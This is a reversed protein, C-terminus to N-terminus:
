SATEEAKAKSSKKSKTRGKRAAPPGSADAEAPAEAKAAPEDAEGATIEVAEQAPAAAEPTDEIEVAVEASAESEAESIPEAAEETEKEEFGGSAVLEKLKDGVLDGLTMGRDSRSSHYSEYDKREEDDHIQRVSLTLRREESRLDIIKAEIPTGVSVVDEPKKVRRHSLEANPIIGEIGSDLHVFAGFPVLRSVTGAVVQGVRYKQVVDSWPDPLIQRLGLSVRGADLNLKLIMVQLKQGVKVVESPHNVRTWSMESVHLLGDIGGLDVFAGYDAIRRIVGERIQGEVLSTITKERQKARDEEIALRHSLVVKRRERDVEIVKFPLSQGIYRDLNRVKGTGVHSGPVFGRIGLDVVLGGKVRDTVMATLKKGEQYAQQVREWANEFDARKKSLIPNGDKSEPQLVYVNIREGVAVVDEASQVPSPSLEDPHIIGESKTGVDVLVGEKDIHVVIGDVVDGESLLRFTRSYDVHNGAEEGEPREATEMRVPEPKSEQAAPREAFAPVSEPVEPKAAEATVAQEDAIREEPEVSTESAEVGPQEEAKSSLGAADSPFAESEKSGLEMDEDTM